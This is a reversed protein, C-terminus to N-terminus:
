FPKVVSIGLMYPRLVPGEGTKFMNNLGYKAVFEVPGLGLRATLGYRFKNQNFDDRIITKGLFGTKQKIKSKGVMVGGYAGASIRLGKNAQNPRTDFSLLVPVTIFTNSFRNTKYDAPRDLITLQEAGPQLMIDRTFGYRNFDISSGIIFSTRPTLMAKHTFAHITLHLSKWPDLALAEVDFQGDQKALAFNHNSWYGGPGIDLGFFKTSNRPSSQLRFPNKHYRQRNTNPVSEATKSRNTRKKTKTKKSTRSKSSQNARPNATVKGKNTAKRSKKVRRQQQAFADNTTIM